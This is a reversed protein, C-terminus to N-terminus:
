FNKICERGSFKIKGQEAMSSSGRVASEARALKPFSGGRNWQRRKGPEEHVGHVRGNAGRKPSLFDLGREWSGGLGKRVKQPGDM